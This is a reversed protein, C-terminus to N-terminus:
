RSSGLRPPYQKGFRLLFGGAAVLAFGILAIPLLPADDGSEALREGAAAAASEEAPDEGFLFLPNESALLTGDAAIVRVNLAGPLSHLPADFRFNGDVDPTVTGLVIPDDFVSEWEGPVAHEGQIEITVPGTHLFREGAVELGVGIGIGTDLNVVDVTLIPAPLVTVTQSTAFVPEYGLAGAHAFVALEEGGQFGSQVLDLTGEWGDDIPEGDVIWTYELHDPELALDSDLTATIVDSARITDPLSVIMIGTYLAPAVADTPLSPGAGSAGDYGDLVPTAVVALSVDRYWAEVPFTQETAGEIEYDDAFWQYTYSDPLPVADTTVVATLVEGVQAVGEIEVAAPSTFASAASVEVAPSPASEEASAANSAGGFLTAVVVVLSAALARTRM